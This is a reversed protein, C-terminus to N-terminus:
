CPPRPSRSGAPSCRRCPGPPPGAAADKWPPLTFRPRSGLRRQAPRQPAPLARRAEIAESLAAAEAETIHGAGYARWLLVSVKTLAARPAAEISARLQDCFM